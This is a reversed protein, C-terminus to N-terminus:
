LHKIQINNNIRGLASSVCSRHCMDPEVEFCTLAIRKKTNLLAFITNLENEKTPLTKKEYFSFLTQYDQKTNLDKRLDSNIGLEPIHLYEMGMNQINKQLSHKSFGYKRSLPNKRVDCLVKINNRVLLNLYEDISRGEYGITFLCRSVQKPRSNEITKKEKASLNARSIIKSNIAYYPYRSYIAKLLKAISLNGYGEKVLLIQERDRQNIEYLFTHNKNVSVPASTQMERGNNNVCISKSTKDYGVSKSVLSLDLNNLIWKKEDEKLYGNLSRKDNYSEFSFCGYKYPVFHYYKKNLRKTILFLYKQFKLSDVSGGFAELIALLIKKRYFLM